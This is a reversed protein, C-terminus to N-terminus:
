YSSTKVTLILSPCSNRNKRPLRSFNKMWSQMVQKSNSNSKELSEHHYPGGIDPLTQIQVTKTEYIPNIPQHNEPKERKSFLDTIKKYTSSMSSSSSSATSSSSPSFNREKFRNLQLLLPILQPLSKWFLSHIGWFTSTILM